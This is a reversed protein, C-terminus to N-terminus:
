HASALARAQAAQKVITEAPKGNVEALHDFAQEFSGVGATASRLEIILDGMEAEPVLARLSDWGEWGPRADFGLLQGRRATLVQSARSMGESPVHVTVMLIPELLVPRARALAESM